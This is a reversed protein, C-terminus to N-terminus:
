ESLLKDVIKNFKSMVDIQIPTLDFYNLTIELVDNGCKVENVYEEISLKEYKNICKGKHNIDSSILKTLNDKLKKEGGFRPCKMLGAIFKNTDNKLLEKASYGLESLYLRMQKENEECIENPCYLGGNLEDSWDMSTGCECEIPLGFDESTNLLNISEDVREYNVESAHSKLVSKIILISKDLTYLDTNVKIDIFKGFSIDNDVIDVEDMDELSLNVMEAISELEQSLFSQNLNVSIVFDTKNSTPRFVQPITLGAKIIEVESGIGCKMKKLQATGGGTARSCNTGDVNVSNYVYKPVYKLAGPHLNWEIGTVKTVKKENFYIKQALETAGEKIYGLNLYHNYTSSGIDFYSVVGDILSKVEKSVFKNGKYSGESLPTTIFTYNSGILISQISFLDKSMKDVSVVEDNKYRLKFGVLTLYKECEEQKSNSNVLGNAKSRSSDGFGHKLDVIAECEIAVIDRNLIEKPVMNSVKSIQRKGSEQSSRTIADFLIGESYYLCIGAGDYKPATVGGLSEVQEFVESMSYILEQRKLVKKMPYYHKRSDGQSDLHVRYDWSPDLKKIENEMRDFEMDSISEVSELGTYWSKALELLESKKEQLNM